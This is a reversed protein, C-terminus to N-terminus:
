KWNQMILAVFTHTLSYIRLPVMLVFYAIRHWYVNFGCFYSISISVADSTSVVCAVKRTGSVAMTVAKMNELLRFGASDIIGGIDTITSCFTM